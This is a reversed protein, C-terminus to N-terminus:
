PLERATVPDALFRFDETAAARAMEAVTQWLPRESTFRGLCGRLRGGNTLTVFVGSHAQLEPEPVDFSPAGRRQVAAEVCQRAIELLRRRAPQPLRAAPQAM